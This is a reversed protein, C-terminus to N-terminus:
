WDIHPAPGLKAPGLFMQGNQITFSTEVRPKGDPGPKALVGLAIRAITADGLPMVGAGALLGLLQDYGEVGGSFAGVPQLRSDLALTGSGGIRLGRWAVDLHDIEVTGGAQRWAEAAQRPPAAPVPGMLTAGFGLNDVAGAFPPPLAPIQLEHLDAALGLTRDADSRAPQAPLL